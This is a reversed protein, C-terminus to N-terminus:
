RGGGNNVGLRKGDNRGLAENREVKIEGWWQEGRYGRVM